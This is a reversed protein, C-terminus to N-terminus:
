IYEQMRQKSLMLVTSIEIETCNRINNCKNKYVDSNTSGNVLIYDINPSFIVVLRQSNSSSIGLLANDFDPAGQSMWDHLLIFSLKRVNEAM